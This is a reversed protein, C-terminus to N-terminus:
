NKPKGLHPPLARPMSKAREKKTLNTGTGERYGLCVAEGYTHINTGVLPEARHWILLVGQIILKAGANTLGAKEVAETVTATTFNTNGFEKCIIVGALDVEEKAKPYIILGIQVADRVDGTIAAPTLWPNPGPGKVCGTLCLASFLIIIIKNMPKSITKNKVPAVDVSSKYQEYAIQADVKAQKFQHENFLRESEEAVEAALKKAKPDKTLAAINKAQIMNLRLQNGMQSNVLTHIQGSLKFAKRANMQNMIGVIIVGIMTGFGTWATIQEATM